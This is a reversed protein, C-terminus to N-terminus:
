EMSYTLQVVEEPELEAGLEEWLVQGDVAEGLATGKSGVLKKFREPECTLSTLFSENEVAFVGVGVPKPAWPLEPPCSALVGLPELPDKGVDTDESEAKEGGMVPVALGFKPLM